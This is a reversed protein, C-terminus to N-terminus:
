RLGALPSRGLFPAVNFGSGAKSKTSSLIVGSVFDAEFVIAAKSPSGFANTVSDPRVLAAPRVARIGCYVNGTDGVIKAMTHLATIVSSRDAIIQTAMRSRDYKAPGFTRLYINEFLDTSLTWGDPRRDLLAPSHGVAQLM